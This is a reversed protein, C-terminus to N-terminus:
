EELRRDRDVLRKRELLREHDVLLRQEKLPRMMRGIPFLIPRAVSVPVLSARGCVDLNPSGEM